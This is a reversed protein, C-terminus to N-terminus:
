EPIKPAADDATAPVTPRSARGYKARAVEIVAPLISILIIAIV